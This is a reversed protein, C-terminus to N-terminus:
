EFLDLTNNYTAIQGNKLVGVQLLPPMMAWDTGSWDKNRYDWRFFCLDEKCNEEYLLASELETLRPSNTIAFQRAIGRLEDMSRTESAPISPHSLFHPEIAALRATDIDVYYKTGTEDTYLSAHRSFVNPVGLISEFNLLLDPKGMLQRLLAMDAEQDVHELEPAIQWEEIMWGYIDCRAIEDNVILPRYKGDDPEYIMAMADNVDLEETPCYNQAQEYLFQLYADGQEPSTQTPFPTPKIEDRYVQAYLQYLPYIQENLEMSLDLIRMFSEDKFLFIDEGTIPDKSYEVQGNQKEAQVAQEYEVVLQQIQALVHAKAAITPIATETPSPFTPTSSPIATTAPLKEEQVPLNPLAFVVVLATTLLGISIFAGLKKMPFRRKSMSTEGNHVLGAKKHGTSERLPEGTSERLTHNALMLAAETRSNVGLKAYINSLHFEVTRVTLNLALAIEKNTKGQILLASVEKERNSFQNSQGM